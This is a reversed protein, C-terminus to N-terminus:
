FRIRPDIYRYAIDSLLNVLLVALVMVLVVGQVVPYDRGNVADVVLRGAGPIAFLTEIVVTTGLFRNVLLTIVTLILVGANRMAHRLISAPPLGKGVHTRVADSALVNSLASASQRALEAAGVMSIAFAPLLTYRLAQWPNSFWSVFGTAPLWALHLAFVAVLVMGLVFSPISVGIVAVARTIAGVPRHRKVAAIMGLPIGIVIAILIAEAVIQATVLFHSAVLQSVPHGSRYSAGFNGTVVGGLWDGYQVLLPRDHGLQARIEKMREDTVAEGALVMATDGPVMQLLLFVLLTAFVVTPVIQGLRRLILRGM